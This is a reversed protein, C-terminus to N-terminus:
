GVKDGEKIKRGKEDIRRKRRKKEVIRWEGREKGL